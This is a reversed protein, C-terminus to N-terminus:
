TVRDDFLVPIVPTLVVPHLEFPVQWPELLAFVMNLIVPIGLVPQTGPVAYVSVAVTVFLVIVRAPKSRETFMPVSLPAGM